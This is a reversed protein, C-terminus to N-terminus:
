ALLGLRRAQQRKANDMMEEHMKSIQELREAQCHVCVYLLLLLLTSPWPLTFAPNAYTCGACTRCMCRTSRSWNSLRATSLFCLLLLLLPLLLLVQQTLM